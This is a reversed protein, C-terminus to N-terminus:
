SNRQVELRPAGSVVRMKRCSAWDGLLGAGEKLFNQAEPAALLGESDASSTQHMQNPIMESISM